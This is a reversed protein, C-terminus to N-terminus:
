QRCCAGARSSRARSWWRRRARRTRRWGPPRRGARGTPASARCGPDVRMDWCVTNIGAVNRSAPVDMTRIDKGLADTIKLQLRGVPKKLHFQIVADTPPNEGAFVNHGWFEDNQHDKSAGSCRRVSPSCRPTRLRRRRRRTNRSRSSTISSGSRAATHPWSCRTTARIFRSRMSAFRRCTAGEMRRWSKGRDLSVFLGTETGVYLVDANKPDETLTKVAEGSLNGNISRFTTGFDNSVWMYTKYDNLRHADVTVYVTGADFRSPVVESVWAGAPFGPMNATLKTNWTKGGDKSMAVVGDDSGTYYVGAQKPSEALSM